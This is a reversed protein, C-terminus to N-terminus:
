RLFILCKMLQKMKLEFDIPNRKIEAHLGSINLETLDLSGQPKELAILGSIKEIKEQFDKYQVTGNEVQIKVKIGPYIEEFWLGKFSGSINASGSTKLNELYSTYDAPVLALFNKGEWRRLM